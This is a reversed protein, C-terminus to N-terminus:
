PVSGSGVKNNPVWLKNEEELKGIQSSFEDSLLYDIKSKSLFPTKGRKVMGQLAFQLDMVARMLPLDDSTMIGTRNQFVHRIRM